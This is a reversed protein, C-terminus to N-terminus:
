GARTLVYVAEEAFWNAWGSRGDFDRANRRSTVALAREIRINMEDCLRAFDKITCLHINQTAYWPESLSGTMPMRGGFGLAMRVSINGFNPFSVIACKGIRVINELVADPRRTAQITQSLIVYDFSQDPYDDLDTDADGQVVSYGRAVCANVGDQSIELGRGEVARRERLLDLLDGSGCGIDLTRAGKDVMDAILMLDTRYTPTTM